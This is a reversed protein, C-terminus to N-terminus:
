NRVWEWYKSGPLLYYYTLQCYYGTAVVDIEGTSRVAIAPAYFAVNDGFGINNTSWPSGPIANTDYLTYNPGMWVIDARGTTSNVGIAPASYVTGASGAIEESSWKSGPTAHYYMLSNNPGMAVVDAEGAPNAARVAIAPASYSTGSGAITESTWKSGPTAHYYMLSNNAGLMVVDAEGAPNATRVAIAPATQDSTGTWAVSCGTESCSATADGSKLNNSEATGNGYNFAIAASLAYQNSPLTSPLSSTASVNTNVTANTFAAVCGNDSGYLSGGISTWNGATGLGMNDPGAVAWWEVNQLNPLYGLTWLTCGNPGVNKTNPPFGCQVSGSVHYDGDSSGPGTLPYVTGGSPYVCYSQYAKGICNNNSDRERCQCQAEVYWVCLPGGSEGWQQYTFQVWGNDGPQSLPFPFGNSCTSCTNTCSSCKFGNTNAQISWFDANKVTAQSCVEAESSQQPDTLQIVVAGSLLPTTGTKGKYKYSISSITDAVTPPPITKMEEETMCPVEQWSGDVLHFCGPKEPLPVNLTEHPLLPWSTKSATAADPQKVEIEADTNFTPGAETQAWAPTVSPGTVFVACSLAAAALIGAIISGVHREPKM